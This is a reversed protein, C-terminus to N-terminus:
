PTTERGAIKAWTDKLPVIRNFVLNDQSSDQDCCFYGQRLFQFRDYPRADRLFGETKANEMVVLSDKNLIDRITEGERIDSPDERTFLRDYLRVTCDLARNAEVWHITGKIKRTEGSGGSRTGPDYTCHIERVMGDDDAIYDTCKIIYANKLRVEAGPSLRFYKKPPDVMFDSREIYLERSFPVLRTGDEPKEPNNQAVLDETKGEPYNTLILKVPDLVTMVRHVEKNLEERICHELLAIDVVSYTKSVGVKDVFSRISSPTYGRRKIGKLTPMRPDDWGDVMNERILQHLKRKSTITYNINLRSFEMQKPFDQFGAKELFWNYLPRHDEFEVTCLSHTIGEWADQLPHAFDYMPYICWEDGTFYHSAFMIRYIVPDRMNINPSAMNIKARLTRSGEEAKGEKMQKFLELNEFVSRNRYPSEKGPATLTGRYQRVEEPSLDCVYADGNKILVLAYEYLRSFYESGYFVRDHWEFGLWQVDEQIAKVYEMEEKEPNTDDMRLNCKGNYKLATGFAICIAKAHGIHLYANPEPPFRTHIELGKFAELDKEVEEHIFNGNNMYSEM